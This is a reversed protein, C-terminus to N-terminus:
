EVAHCHFSCQRSDTVLAITRMRADFSGMDFCRIHETCCQSLSQVDTLLKGYGAGLAVDSYHM